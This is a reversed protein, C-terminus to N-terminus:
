LYQQLMNKKAYLLTALLLGVGASWLNLTAKNRKELQHYESIGNFKNMLVIFLIPIAIILVLQLFMSISEIKEV